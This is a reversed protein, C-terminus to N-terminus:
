NPGGYEKVSQQLLYQANQIQEPMGTITIIRDNSNHLPEDIKIDAGSRMRISSIRKGQKGIIAGALTKPISVQTSSSGPAATGGAGEGPAGGYGAGGGMNGGGHQGGTMNGGGYNGQGGGYNGGAGGGYNGGQGGGYGGGYGDNAGGGGGRSFGNRSGGGSGRGRGGFGRGGGGGGRSSFRQEEEDDAFGRHQQFGGGRRGGGGRGRGGGRGGYGGVSTPGFNDETTHGGYEYAYFEDFHHPDYPQNPGKPPAQDHLLEIITGICNVVDVPKRGVAIVRETSNPCCSSYVKITTNTKERLEKIKYGARGIIAGAQSQHVLMRIEAEFDLDKHGQYDELTPIIDLLVELVTGLNASIILVREPGNCDPVQVTANFDARLRRINAGAKGIIAGANKSQLLIRLDYKPGEGKKRKLQSQQGDDDFQRKVGRDQEGSDSM